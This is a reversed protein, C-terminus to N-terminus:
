AIERPLGVIRKVCYEAAIRCRFLAVEWRRPRWGVASCRAFSGGADFALCNGTRLRLQPMERRAIRRDHRRGRISLDDRLESSTRPPAAGAAYAGHFREFGRDPVLWGEVFWQSLMVVAIGLLLGAELLWRVFAGRRCSPVSADM